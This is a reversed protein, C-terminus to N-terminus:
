ILKMNEIGLWAKGKLTLLYHFQKITNGRELLYGNEVLYNLLPIDEKHQPYIIHNINKEGLIVKSELFKKAKKEPSKESEEM